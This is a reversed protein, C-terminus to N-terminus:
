VNSAGQLTDPQGQKALSAKGAIFGAMWTLQDVDPATAKDTSSAAKYGADWAAPNQHLAPTQQQAPAQAPYECQYARDIERMATILGDIRGSEFAGQTINKQYVAERLFAELRKHIGDLCLEKANV